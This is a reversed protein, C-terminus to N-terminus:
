HTNIATKPPLPTILPRRVELGRTIPTGSVGWRHDTKLTRLMKAANSAQGEVDQVEDVIVRRWRTEYLPSVFAHRKSRNAKQATFFHHEKRVISLYTLVVDANRLTQVLEEAAEESYDHPPGEYRVVRLNSDAVFRKIEGDWQACIVPTPSAILTPLGQVLVFM